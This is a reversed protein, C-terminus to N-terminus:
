YRYSDTPLSITGKNGCSHKVNQMAWAVQEEIPAGIMSAMSLGAFGAGASKLLSRRSCSTQTQRDERKNSM